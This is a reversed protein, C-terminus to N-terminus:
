NEFQFAEHDEKWGCVNFSEANDTSKGWINKQTGINLNRRFIETKFGKARSFRLDM